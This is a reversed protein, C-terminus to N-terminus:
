ANEISLASFSQQLDKKNRTGYLKLIERRRHICQFLDQRWPENQVRKTYDEYVRLGRESEDNM